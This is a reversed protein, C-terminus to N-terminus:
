AHRSSRLAAKVDGYSKELKGRSQLVRGKTEQKDSGFIRGAHAQARGMMDMIVGNIQHKNM